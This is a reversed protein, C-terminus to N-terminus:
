VVEPIEQVLLICELIALQFTSVKTEFCPAQNFIRLVSRDSDFEALVRENLLDRLVCVHYNRLNKM